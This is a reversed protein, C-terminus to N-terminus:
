ELSAVGRPEADSTHLHGAGDASRHIEQSCKRCAFSQLEYELGYLPHPARRTLRMVQRCTECRPPFDVGFHRPKIESTLILMDGKVAFPLQVTKDLSEALLRLRFVPKGSEDLVDLRWESDETLRNVIDKALDSYIGLAAKRAAYSDCLIDEVAPPEPFKGQQVQFIFRPM